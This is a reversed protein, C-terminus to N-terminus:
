QEVKTVVVVMSPICSFSVVMHVTQVEYDEHNYRIVFGKPPIIPTKMLSFLLSLGTGDQEYIEWKM